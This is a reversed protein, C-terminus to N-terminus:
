VGGIVGVCAYTGLWLNTCSSTIGTNWRLFNAMTIKNYDVIGQCTTTDKILHFKNCNSVIGPQNPTPTTIGDNPLTATTTTASSSKDGLVGACVYAGLQLNTCGSNVGLNWRFFDALIIKNYDAVGQCTTTGKVLHFKDCNNVMGSQVPTPTAIGNDPSGIATTPSATDTPRTSAGIVGACAYAGLWLNTCDSDVTPNWEFFDALTIKNYNAIGQCTTTDKILHFKNCNNVMGPQTPTPTAIGNSPISSTTTPYSEDDEDDLNPPSGDENTSICYYTGIAMGSCDSKVSPNM